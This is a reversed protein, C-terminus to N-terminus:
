QLKINATMKLWFKNQKAFLDQIEKYSYNAPQCADVQYSVQVSPTLAAQTFIRHWEQQQAVPVSNPVILQQPNAMQDVERFGASSLTPVGQAPKPGTVGLVNIQVTNNKGTWQSFESLFGVTMDVQGGLLGLTAETPSKYPVLILNPYKEKIQLATIHSMAGLGTIGFTIERDRPVDAWTRYKLSGIAMPATCQIMLGSFRNTNHSDDPYVNPRIFFAASTALITNPNRNVYQAAVAGGAGPRADFVFHYKKQIRNAEEVLTRSYTAVSDGPGFAFVITVVEKAMSLGSFITLVFILLYRKM